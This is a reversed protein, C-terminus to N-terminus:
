ISNKRVRKENIYFKILKNILIKGYTKSEIKLIKNKDSIRRDFDKKRFFSKSTEIYDSYNLNFFEYAYKIMQIGSFPKGNSLIYDNPKLKIMKLLLLCQEECWNWERVINLNGFKTKKNKLKSKIAAICIKPILYKKNRFTSETNFIIANYSPLNYKDRFKKTIQYSLLKSKGYPSIPKKQSNIKIKKVTNSFIESSTANIFKSQKNSILLEELFNKCGQYNSKLTISPKKFSISPSSQGAFFFIYDFNKELTKRIDKKNQIDLKLIEIRKFKYRKIKNKFIKPKRSTLFVQHKEKNLIKTLTIGFQGSGGVILIKKKM